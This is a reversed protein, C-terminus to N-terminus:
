KRRRILLAAAGLIGLAITSPEPVLSFSTLGLLTAPPTAPSGVGGLDAGIQFVTSKGAKAGATLAADYTAGGSAEWARVQFFPRSGPAQALTKTGGTFFGGSALFPTTGAVAALSAESTSSGVYLQALFGSGTLKTVGGVDFVPANLGAGVNSFNVTGQAYASVAALVCAVSLILKKM